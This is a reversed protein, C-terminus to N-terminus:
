WNVKVGLQMERPPKASFIRGFNPTGFTRNPLDLNARNLANFVDWRFEITREGRLPWAKAISLDLSAYGPGVVSNRLATGFTFPAPLIFADADFWRDARREGGPLNADRLQDPRQAPGAGVNARDVGINVTFPSGSQAFFVGNV